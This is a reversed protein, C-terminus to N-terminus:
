PEVEGGGCVTTSLRGNKHQGRAASRSASLSPLTSKTVVVTPLNKSQQLACDAPARPRLWRRGYQNTGDSEGHSWANEGVVAIHLLGGAGGQM